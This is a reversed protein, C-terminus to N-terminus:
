LKRNSFPIRIYIFKSIKKRAKFINLFIINDDSCYFTLSVDYQGLLTVPIRRTLYIAKGVRM